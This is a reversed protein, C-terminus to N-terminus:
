TNRREDRRRGGIRRIQMVLVVVAFIIIAITISIEIWLIVPNNEIFYISGSAAILSMHILWSIALAILLAHSVIVLIAFLQRRRM